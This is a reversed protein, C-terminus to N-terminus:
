VIINCYVICYNYYLLSSTSICIYIYIYIYICVCVYLIYVLIYTHTYIHTYIYIYINLGISNPRHLAQPREVASDARVRADQGEYLGVIITHISRIRKTM